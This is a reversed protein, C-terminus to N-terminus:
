SMNKAVAEHPILLYHWPKGSNSISHTTAHRCWQVAADRKAKVDAEM